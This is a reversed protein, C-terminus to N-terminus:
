NKLVWSMKMLFCKKDSTFNGINCTSGGEIGAGMDHIRFLNTSDIDVEWAIIEQCIDWVGWSKRDDAIPSEPACESYTRFMTLRLDCM